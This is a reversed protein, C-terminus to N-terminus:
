LYNKKDDQYYKIVMEVLEQIFNRLFGEIPKADLARAISPFLDLFVSNLIKIDKIRNKQVDFKLNTFRPLIQNETGIGWFRRGAIM